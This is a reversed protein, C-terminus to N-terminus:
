LYAVAFIDALLRLIYVLYHCNMLYIHYIIHLLYKIFLCEKKSNIELIISIISERTYITYLMYCLQALMSDFGLVNCLLTNCNGYDCLEMVVLCVSSNPKM